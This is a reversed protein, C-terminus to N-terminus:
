TPTAMKQGAAPMAVPASIASPDVARKGTVTATANADIALLRATSLFRHNAM